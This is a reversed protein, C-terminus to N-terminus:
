NASETMRLAFFYFAALNKTGHGFNTNSHKEIEKSHDIGESGRDWNRFRLLLILFQARRWKALFHYQDTTDNQTRSIDGLDWHAIKGNNQNSSNILLDSHTVSSHQNIYTRNLPTNRCIVTLLTEIGLHFIQRIRFLVRQHHTDVHLVSFRTLVTELIRFVINVRSDIFVKRQIPLAM